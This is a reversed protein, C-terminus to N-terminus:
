STRNSRGDETIGTHTQRRKVEAHFAETFATMTEERGLLISQLGNFVRQEL